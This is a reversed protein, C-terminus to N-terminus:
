DRINRTEYCLSLRTNFASIPFRSFLILSIARSGHFQKTNSEIFESLGNNSKKIKWEHIGSIVPTYVIFHERRTTRRSKPRMNVRSNNSLKQRSKIAFNRRSKKKRQIPSVNKATTANDIASYDFGKTKKKVNWLLRIIFWTLLWYFITKWRTNRYYDATTFFFIRLM